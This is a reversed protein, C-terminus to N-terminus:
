IQALEELRRRIDPSEVRVLGLKAHYRFGSSTRQASSLARRAYRKAADLKGDDASMFSLVTALKYEQIPFLSQCSKGWDLFGQAENYLDRMGHLVVFWPFDLWVSTQVGPFRKEAELAMRYERLAADNQHLAIQCEAMQVHAQALQSKEPFEDFLRSLLEMAGHVEGSAALEFAQIRLYQAKHFLTRCRSLREYFESRDRDTWSKRRFWDDTAM